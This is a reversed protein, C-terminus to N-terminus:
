ARRRPMILGRVNADGAHGFFAISKDEGRFELAVGEVGKLKGLMAFMRTGIEMGDVREVDKGFDVARWNPYTDQRTKLDIRQGCSRLTLREAMFEEGLSLTANEDCPSTSIHLEELARDEDSTLRLLTKMFAVGFGEVDIAIVARTPDESVDPWPAETHEEETGIAPVWTRILATGDCGIFQLGQQQGDQFAELSLSRYLVHRSEDQATALWANLWAVTAARAPVTIDVAEKTTATM